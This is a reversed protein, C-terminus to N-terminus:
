LIIVYIIHYYWKIITKPTLNNNIIYKINIDNLEIYYYIINENKIIIHLLSINNKINM